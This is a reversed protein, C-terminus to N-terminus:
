ATGKKRRVIMPPELSWAPFGQAFPSSAAPQESTQRAPQMSAKKKTESERTPASKPAAPSSQKKHPLPCSKASGTGHTPAFAEQKPQLDKKEKVRTDAARQDGTEPGKAAFPSSHSPKPAPNGAVSKADFGPKAETVPQELKTGCEPCFMDGPEGVTGCKPCVPRSTAMM